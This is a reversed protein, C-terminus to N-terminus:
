CPILNFNQFVLLPERHCKMATEARFAAETMAAQICDKPNEMPAFHDSDLAM